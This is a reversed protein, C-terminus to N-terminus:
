GPALSVVGADVDELADGVVRRDGGSGGDVQAEIASRGRVTSVRQGLKGPVVATDPEVVVPDAPEVGDIVVLLDLELVAEGLLVAHDVDGDGLIQGGNLVVRHPVQSQVSRQRRSRLHRGDVVRRTRKRNPCSIRHRKNNNISKM